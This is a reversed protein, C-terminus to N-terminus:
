LELREGHLLLQGKIQLKDEVDDHSLNDEFVDVGHQSAEKLLELVGLKEVLLNVKKELLDWDAGDDHVKLVLGVGFNFVGVGRDVPNSGAPM